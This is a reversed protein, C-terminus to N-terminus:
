VYFSKVKKFNSVLMLQVFYGPHIVSINLDKNWIGAEKLAYACGESCFYKNKDDKCKLVFGFIGKWDYPVKNTAFKVMVNRVIEKEKSTVEKEWIEVPTGKTHNQFSSFGWYTGDEFKWAEILYTDNIDELYAIHSYESRTWFKILKSIFSKGKFAAFYVKDKM